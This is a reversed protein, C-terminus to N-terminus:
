LTKGYDFMAKMQEDTWGLLQKVAAVLPNNSEVTPRFEWEIQAARGFTPIATEVEDLVNFHLLSLRAQAMSISDIVPIVDSQEPTNGEEVWQLFEQYDRNSEVTPISANDALRIVVNNNTLKYM